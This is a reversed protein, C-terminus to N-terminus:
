RVRVLAASIAKRELLFLDNHMGDPVEHYEILDPVAQKLDRSMQTPIVEDDAGHFVIFKGGGVALERLRAVNDFRHYVLFGLPVHAVQRSMEMTSTFPALLVGQHIEFERAALLVAAAGLSHGFVRLKPKLVDMELGLAQAAAPVVAAMSEQIRGPTPNGLCEGYGPFDVLLFADRPDGHEWCFEALDLAVTGNGGAVIWLREPPGQQRVRRQLYAVQTGQSTEYAVREGNTKTSWKGVEGEGYARPFYIFKSQCGTLLALSGLVVGLLIRFLSRLFKKMSKSQAMGEWQSCVPFRVGYNRVRM